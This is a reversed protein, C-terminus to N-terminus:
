ADDGEPEDSGTVGAPSVRSTIFAQAAAIAEAQKLDLSVRLFPHPRAGPHHVTTGVFQGGIVLSREGDASKVQRNIRGVSRGRRQSDDVSIFHPATGYELWTGVSRAWGPAVTITVTIRGPVAKSKMTLADRVEESTVRSKAEDMVVAAAAKAAGRLLKREIQAPLGALYSRVEAKGRSTAM